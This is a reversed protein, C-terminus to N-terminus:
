KKKHEELHALANKQLELAKKKLEDIKMIFRDYEEQMRHKNVYSSNANITIYKSGTAM